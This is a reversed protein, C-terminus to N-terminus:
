QSQNEDVILKFKIQPSHHRQQPIFLFCVNHLRGLILHKTVVNITYYKKEIIQVLLKFCEKTTM